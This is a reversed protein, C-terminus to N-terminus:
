QRMDGPNHGRRHGHRTEPTGQRWRAVLDGAAAPWGPFDFAFGADVLRAPVVPRSKLVLETETRMVFAGIEVMWRTAPLGVPAGWVARLAAMFDRQPLPHPAALNVPGAIDECAPLFQVARAFDRDHIWSMYQWGGAIPGGLGRRTLALLVDFPGGPDPSMVMATRLAVRRTRPTTAEYLAEEWARAIDISAGWYRPADPEGGGMRGTEEDNPADFRHSYVTATSMQLWTRPPQAAQAIARGVVRTSQVRSDM